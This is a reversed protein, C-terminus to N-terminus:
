GERPMIQDYDEAEHVVTRSEMFKEWFDGEIFLEKQLFEGWVQPPSFKLVRLTQLIYTCTHLYIYM